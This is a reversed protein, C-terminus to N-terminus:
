SAMTYRDAIQWSGAGARDLQDELLRTRRSRVGYLNVLPQSHRMSIRFESIPGGRATRAILFESSALRTEARVCPMREAGVPAQPVQACERVCECTEPGLARSRFSQFNQFLGGSVSLSM